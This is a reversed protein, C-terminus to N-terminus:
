RNGKAKGLVALGTKLTSTSAAAHVHRRAEAIVDRVQAYLGDTVSPALETGKQKM